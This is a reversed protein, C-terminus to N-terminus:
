EPPCPAENPTALEHVPLVEDLQDLCAQAWNPFRDGLRERARALIMEVREAARVAAVLAPVPCAKCTPWAVTECRLLCRRVRETRIGKSEFACERWAESM